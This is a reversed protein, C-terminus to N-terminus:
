IMFIQEIKMWKRKLVGNCLLLIAAKPPKGRCKEPSSLHLIIGIKNNNKHQKQGAVEVIIGPLAEAIKM